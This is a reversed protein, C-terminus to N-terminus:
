FFAHAAWRAAQALGFWLVLSTGAAVVLGLAPGFSTQAMSASEMEFGLSQPHVASLPEEFMRVM